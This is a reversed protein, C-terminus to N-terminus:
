TIRESIVSPVAGCVGTRKRALMRMEVVALHFLKMGFEKCGEQLM